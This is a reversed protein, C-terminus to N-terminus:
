VGEMELAWSELGGARWGELGAKGVVANKHQM